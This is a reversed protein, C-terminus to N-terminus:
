FEFTNTASTINLSKRKTRRLKERNETLMPMFNAYLGKSRLDEVTKGQNFLMKDINMTYLKEERKQLKDYMAFAKYDITSDRKFVADVALGKMNKCVRISEVIMNEASLSHRKEFHEIIMYVELMQDGPKHINNKYYLHMDQALIPNDVQGYQKDIMEFLKAIHPVRMGDHFRDGHSCLFCDDKISVPQRRRRAGGGDPGRPPIADSIGGDRTAEEYDRYLLDDDEEDDDDGVSESGPLEYKTAIKTKRAQSHAEYIEDFPVTDPNITVNNPQAQSINYNTTTTTTTTPANVAITNATNTIAPLPNVHASMLM